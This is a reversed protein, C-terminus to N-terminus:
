DVRSAMITTADNSEQFLPGHRPLSRYQRYATRSVPDRAQYHRLCSLYGGAVSWARKPLTGVTFDNRLLQLSDFPIRFLMEPFPVRMWSFLITNRYGYFHERRQNRISSVNHVVPVTDAFVVDCGRDLLRISLDREEGQHVLFEPYGGLELFIERRIAHACGIFNRLRTGLVAPSMASSPENRLPEVYPLAIAAAQDYQGFLAAVRALTHTCAFKADDDISVVFDGYADRYGRNRLVIYGTNAEQRFYRVRPFDETVMRQTDDSSADDYVLVEHGVGVQDACSTLAARLDRVRNRTTIVVSVVPTHCVHDPVAKDSMPCKITM